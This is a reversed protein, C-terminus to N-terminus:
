DKTGEPIMFAWGKHSKSDIVGEVGAFGFWKEVGLLTSTQNNKFAKIDFSIDPELIKVSIRVPYKKETRESKWWELVVYEFTSVKRKNGDPDSILIYDGPMCALNEDAPLLDNVIIDYGSDLHVVIFDGGECVDDGWFHQFNGVGTSTFNYATNIKAEIRVRPIMYWDFIKDEPNKDFVHDLWLTEKEPFLELKAHFKSFNADVHIAQKEENYRLSSKNFKQNLEDADHKVPEFPPIFIDSEFVYEGSSADLWFIHALNGNLFYLKGSVFFMGVYLPNEKGPFDIVSHISWTEIIEDHKGLPCCTGNESYVHQTGTLIVIIIILLCRGYLSWIGFSGCFKKKM